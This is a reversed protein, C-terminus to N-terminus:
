EFAERYRKKVANKEGDIRKWEDIADGYTKKGKQEKM